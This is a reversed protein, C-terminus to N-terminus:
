AISLEICRSPQTNVHPLAGTNTFFAGNDYACMFNALAHENLIRIVYTVPLASSCLIATFGNHVRIITASRTSSLAHRCVPCRAIGGTHGIRSLCTAHFMHRCFTPRRIDGEVLADLCIACTGPGNGAATTLMIPRGYLRGHKDTMTEGMNAALQSYVDIHDM